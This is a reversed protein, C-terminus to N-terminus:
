AEGRGAGPNERTTETRRSQIVSYLALLIALFVFVGGAYGLREVGWAGFVRSGILAGGGIGINYTGSYISVAVDKSDAADNLVRTQFVLGAATMAAGWFFCLAAAAALGQGAFGALLLCLCVVCLPALLMVNPSTEAYRGGVASGAVGAGGMALLLMAVTQPAFGGTQSMYPAFYTSLTFHGTVTLLTLAYVRMLGATHFLKPLSRLGGSDESPRSPLLRHMLAFIVLATAGVVGFAARWGLHHGLLTGVPVGLVMAVSTGGVILSLAKGRKGEPAARTVLPTAISWFLAHCLAICVRAGMLMFFSSSLSALVNGGAFLLLLALILTRRDIKASMVTLPLSMLSVMWAYATLLIGTSSESKQFSAAIDPLLGIPLMETTVFIFAACSLGLVPLWDKLRTKPYAASRLSM